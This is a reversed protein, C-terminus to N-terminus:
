AEAKAIFAGLSDMVSPASIHYRGAGGLLGAYRTHMDYDAAPLSAPAVEADPFFASLLESTAIPEPALNLVDVESEIATMTDAHLRDMPYWQFRTAPNIKDTQNNHILDFIINKKFGDGFLGPLRIITSQEFNAQTFLELARRNRGYAEHHEGPDDSEDAGNPKVYVDITSILVFRKARVQRVAEMLTNLNDLDGQPDKNAAWKVAPAGACVVTDFTQGAIQSITSSNFSAGFSLTRALTSGVFGTHGILAWNSATHTM